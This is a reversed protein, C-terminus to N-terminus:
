GTGTLSPNRLWDASRDPQGTTHKHPRKGRSKHTDPLSGKSPSMPLPPPVCWYLPRGCIPRPAPLLPCPCICALLTPTRKQHSPLSAVLQRPLPMPKLPSSLHSLRLCGHPCKGLSFHATPSTSYRKLEDIRRSSQECSRISLQKTRPFPQTTNWKLFVAYHIIVYSKDGQM